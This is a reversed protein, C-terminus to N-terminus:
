FFPCKKNDIEKVKGKKKRKQWKKMQGRRELNSGDTMNKKCPLKRVKKGYIVIETPKNDKAPCPRSPTFTVSKLFPKPYLQAFWHNNGFVDQEQQSFGFSIQSFTKDGKPWPTKTWPWPTPTQLKGARWLRLGCLCLCLCVCSFVLSLPLIFSSFLWSTHTQFKGPWWLRLGRLCFGQHFFLHLLPFNWLLLGLLKWNADLFYKWQCGFM